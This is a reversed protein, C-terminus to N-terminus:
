ICFCFITGIFTIIILNKYTRIEFNGDKVNKSDKGNQSPLIYLFRMLIGQEIKCFLSQDIKKPTKRENQPM